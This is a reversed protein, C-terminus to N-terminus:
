NICSLPMVSVGDFGINSNWHFSDDDTNQYQKQENEYSNSSSSQDDNAAANGDDAAAAAADDNANAAGDDGQVADDSAYVFVKERVSCLAIILALLTLAFKRSTPRRRLTVPSFRGRKRLAKPKPFDSPAAHRVLQDM